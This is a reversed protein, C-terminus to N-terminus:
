KQEKKGFFLQKYDQITPKVFERWFYGIVTKAGIVALFGLIALMMLQAETFKVFGKNYLDIECQQRENALMQAFIEKGGSEINDPSLGNDILIQRSTADMKVAQELQADRTAEDTM